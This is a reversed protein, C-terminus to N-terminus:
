DKTGIWNVYFVSALLAFVIVIVVIRLIDDFREAAADDADQKFDFCFSDEGSRRAFERVQGPASFAVQGSADTAKVVVNRGKRVGEVHWLFKGECWDKAIVKVSEVEKLEGSQKEGDWLPILAEADVLDLDVPFIAGTLQFFHARCRVTHTKSLYFYRGPTLHEISLPTTAKEVSYKVITSESDTRFPDTKPLLPTQSGPSADDLALAICAFAHGAAVALATFRM